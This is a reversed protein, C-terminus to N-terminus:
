HSAPSEAVSTGGQVSRETVLRSIKDFIIGALAGKTILDTAEVGGDPSVLWARTTETGFGSDSVGVENAM